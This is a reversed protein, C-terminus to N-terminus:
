AELGRIGSIVAEWLEETATPLPFCTCSNPGRRLKQFGADVMSSGEWLLKPQKLFAEILNRQRNLRSMRCRNPSQAKPTPSRLREGKSTQLGLCPSLLRDSGNSLMKTSSHACKAGKPIMIGHLVSLACQKQSSAFEAASADTRAQMQLYMLKSSASRVPYPGRQM